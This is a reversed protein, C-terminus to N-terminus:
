GLSGCGLLAFRFVQSVLFCCTLVAQLWLLGALSSQLILTSGSLMPATTRHLQSLRDVDYLANQVNGIAELSCRILLNLPM